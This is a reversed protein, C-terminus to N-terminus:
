HVEEELKDDSDWADAICLMMEHATVSMRGDDMGAISMTDFIGFAQNHNKIV